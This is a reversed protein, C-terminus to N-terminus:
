NRGARMKRYDAEIRMDNADNATIQDRIDKGTVTKVFWVTDPDNVADLVYENCEVVIRDDYVDGPDQERRSKFLAMAATVAALTAWAQQAEVLPIM